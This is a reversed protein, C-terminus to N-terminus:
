FHPRDLLVIVRIRQPRGVVGTSKLHSKRCNRKENSIQIIHRDRIIICRGDKTITSMRTILKSFLLPVSKHHLEERLCFGKKASQRWKRHGGETAMCYDDRKMHRWSDLFILENLISRLLPWHEKWKQQQSLSSLTFLCFGPQRLKRHGGETGMCATITEKWM